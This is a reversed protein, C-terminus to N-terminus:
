GIERGPWRTEDRGGGGELFTGSPERVVTYRLPSRTSRQRPGWTGSVELILAKATSRLLAVLQSPSVLLSERCRTYAVAKGSLFISASYRTRTSQISHAHTYTRMFVHTTHSEDRTDMCRCM